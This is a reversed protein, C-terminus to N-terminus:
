ATKRKTIPEVKSDPKRDRWGPCVRDWTARVDTKLRPTPEFPFSGDPRRPDM